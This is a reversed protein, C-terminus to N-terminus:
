TYTMFAFTVPLLFIVVKVQALSPYGCRGVGQCGDACKVVYNSPDGEVIYYIFGQIRRKDFDKKWELMKNIQPWFREEKLTRAM